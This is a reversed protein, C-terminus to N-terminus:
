RVVGFVVGGIVVGVLLGGVGWKLKRATSLRMEKRIIDKVEEINAQANVVNKDIRILSNDVSTLRTGTEQVINKSESVLDDFQKKLAQYEMSQQQIRNEYLSKSQDFLMTLRKVDANRSNFNRFVDAYLNYTATNILFATDCSVRITDGRYYRMTAYEKGDCWTSSINQAHVTICIAMFLFTTITKM